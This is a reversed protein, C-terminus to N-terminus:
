QPLSLCNTSVIIVRSYRRGSYKKLERNMAEIADVALTSAVSPGRELAYTDSLIWGEQFSLNRRSSEEELAKVFEGPAILQRQALNTDIEEIPSGDFITFSVVPSLQVDSLVQHVSKYDSDLAFTYDGAILNQSDGKQQVYSLFSDGSDVIGEQELLSAIATASSGNQITISTFLGVEEGLNSDLLSRLLFIIGVTILIFLLAIGISIQLVSLKKKKSSKKGRKKKKKRKKKKSSTVKKAHLTIVRQKKTHSTSHVRDEVKRSVTRKTSESKAQSAEKRKAVIEKADERTPIHDKISMERKNMEKSTAAAKKDRTEM